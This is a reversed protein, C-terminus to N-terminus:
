SEAYLAKTRVKNKKKEENEAKSEQSSQSRLKSVLELIKYGFLRRNEENDVLSEIAAKGTACELIALGALIETMTDPAFPSYIFRISKDIRKDREKFKKENRM